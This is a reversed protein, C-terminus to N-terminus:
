WLDPLRTIPPSFSFFIEDEALQTLFSFKESVAM